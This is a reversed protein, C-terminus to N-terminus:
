DVKRNDYHKLIARGGRSRPSLSAGRTEADQYVIINPKNPREKLGWSRAQRTVILTRKGQEAESVLYDDVFAKAKAVSPLKKILSHDKFSASHYPLLEICALNQSVDRLADRYSWNRSKAIQQIVERLKREWWMFGSYWCFQPDLGSFPFEIGEFSQSLNRGLRERFAPMEHEAWYDCYDFGPNLLLIVIKANRLDGVYPVPLLSLHLLDDDPDGFRSHAIYSSFSTADKEVWRSKKSLVRQLSHLDDPHVFPQKDLPCRQWFEILSESM